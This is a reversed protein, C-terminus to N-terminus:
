LSSQRTQVRSRNRRCTVSPASCRAGSETVGTRTDRSPEDEVVRAIGLDLIKVHNDRTVLTRRSSPGAQVIGKTSPRSGTPSKGPTSWASRREAIPGDSLIVPLVARSCSRSSYTATGEVGIDYVAMVHITSPVPPSRKTGFGSLTDASLHTGEPLVKM